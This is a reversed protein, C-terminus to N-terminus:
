VGVWRELLLMMSHRGSGLGSLLVPIARVLFKCESYALEKAREAQQVRGQLM